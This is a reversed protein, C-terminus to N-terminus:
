LPGRRRAALRSSFLEVRGSGEKTRNTHAMAKSFCYVV